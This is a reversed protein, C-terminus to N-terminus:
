LFTAFYFSPIIAVFLSLPSFYERLIVCINEVSYENAIIQKSSKVYSM